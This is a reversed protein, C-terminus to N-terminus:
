EALWTEYEHKDRERLDALAKREEESPNINGPRSAAFEQPYEAWAIVDRPDLKAAEVMRKLEGLQGGSLKLVAL